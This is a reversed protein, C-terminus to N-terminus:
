SGQLTEPPIFQPSAWGALVQQIYAPDKNQSSTGIIIDQYCWQNWSAWTCPKRQEWLMCNPSPKWGCRQSTLRSSWPLLESHWVLGRGGARIPGRHWMLPYAPHCLSALRRLFHSQQNQKTDLLQTLKAAKPTCEGAWNDVLKLLGEKRLLSLWLLSELKTWTPPKECRDSCSHPGM